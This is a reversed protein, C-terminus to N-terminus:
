QGTTKEECAYDISDGNYTYGFLLYDDYFIKYLKKRLIQPIDRFNDNCKERTARRPYDQFYIPENSQKNKQLYDVLLQSEEIVLDHDIIIDFDVACPNCIPTAPRWHHDLADLNGRDLFSTVYIILELFTIHYHGPPLKIRKAQKAIEEKTNKFKETYKFYQSNNGNLYILSIIQKAHIAAFEDNSPIRFKSYYASVLREFPHRYIFFKTYTQMRRATDLTQDLYTALCLREKVQDPFPPKEGIMLGFKKTWTFSSAKPVLCNVVEYDDNFRFRYTDEGLIVTYNTEASLKKCNEKISYKRDLFKPYVQTLPHAGKGKMTKVYQDTLFIQRRNVDPQILIENNWSKTYDIWSSSSISSVAYAGEEKVSSPISIDINIPNSLSRISAYKNILLCLILLSVLTMVINRRKARRIFM